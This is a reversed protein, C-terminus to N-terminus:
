KMVVWFYFFMVEVYGMWYFWLVKGEGFVENIGIVYRESYVIVDRVGGGIFFEGREM